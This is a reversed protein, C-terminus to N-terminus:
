DKTVKKDVEESFFVPMETTAVGEQEQSKSELWEKVQGVKEELVTLTTLLVMRKKIDSAEHTVNGSWNGIKAADKVKSFKVLHTIQDIEARARKVAAPRSKQESHRLLIPSLLVDM